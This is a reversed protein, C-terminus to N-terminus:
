EDDLFGGACLVRNTDKVMFCQHFGRAARKEEPHPFTIEFVKAGSGDASAVALQPWSRGHLDSMESVVLGELEPHGADFWAVGDTTVGWLHLGNAKRRWPAQRFSTVSPELGKEDIEVQALEALQQVHEKLLDINGGAGVKYIQEVTTNAAVAAALMASFFLTLSAKALRMRAEDSYYPDHAVSRQLISFAM